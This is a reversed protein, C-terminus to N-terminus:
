IVKGGYQQLAAAQLEARYGLGASEAQQLGALLNTQLEDLTAWRAGAIEKTDVPQLCGGTAQAAFVHSTWSITENEFSFDVYVKLLYKQLQIELGTEEYAERRAGTEFDEGPNVGGSPPRYVGPPYSPKQIVAIKDRKSIFLTVDHARGNRMSWKLLDFERQSMQCATRLIHPVGYKQELQNM